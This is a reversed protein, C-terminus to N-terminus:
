DEDRVFYDVENPALSYTEYLMRYESVTFEGMMGYWDQLAWILDEEEWPISYNPNKLKYEAYRKQSDVLYDSLLRGDALRNWIHLKKM